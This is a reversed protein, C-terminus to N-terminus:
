IYMGERTPIKIWESFESLPGVGENNRAAVAFKYEELQRMRSGITCSTQRGTVRRKQFSELDMDATGYRIIYHTIASGGDSDPVTWNITM